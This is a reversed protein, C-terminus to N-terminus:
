IQIKYIDFDEQNILKKVKNKPIKHKCFYDTIIIMRDSDKLYDFAFSIYLINSQLRTLTM